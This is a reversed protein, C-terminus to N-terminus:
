IRRPGRIWTVLITATILFLFLASGFQEVPSLVIRVSSSFNPSSITYEHSKSYASNVFSVGTAGLAFCLIAAPLRSFRPLTAIGLGVAISGAPVFWSGVSLLGLVIVGWITGISTWAVRWHGAQVSWAILLSALV